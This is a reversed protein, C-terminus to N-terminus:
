ILTACAILMAVVWIITLALWVSAGRKASAAQKKHFQVQQEFLHEIDKDKMIFFYFLNSKGLRKLSKTFM